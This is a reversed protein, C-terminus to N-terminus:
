RVITGSFGYGYSRLNEKARALLSGKRAYLSEKDPIPMMTESAFEFATLSERVGILHDILKVAALQATASKINEPVRVKFPDYTYTVYYPYGDCPACDLSYDFEYTITSIIKRAIVLKGTPATFFWGDNFNFNDLYLTCDKNARVEWYYLNVTSWDISGIGHTFNFDMDLNVVFSKGNKPLKFYARDYNGWRDYLRLEFTVDNTDTEARFSVFDFRDIPKNLDKTIPYYANRNTAFVIKMANTGAQVRIADNSVTTGTGTGFFSSDDSHEDCGKPYPKRKRYREFFCAKVLEVCNEVDEDFFVEEDEGGLDFEWSEGDGCHLERPVLHPIELRDKIKDEADRIFGDILATVEADTKETVRKIVEKTFGSEAYVDNENAYAM